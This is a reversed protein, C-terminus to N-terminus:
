PENKPMKDLKEIIAKFSAKQETEIRGVKEDLRFIDKKVGVNEIETAHAKVEVDTIRKEHGQLMQWGAGVALLVAAIKIALNLNGNLRQKTM